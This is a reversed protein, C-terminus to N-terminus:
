RRWSMSRALRLSSPLLGSRYDRSPGTTWVQLLINLYDDFGLPTSPICFLFYKSSIIYEFIHPRSSLEVIVGSILSDDHYCVKRISDLASAM